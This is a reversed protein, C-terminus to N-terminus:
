KLRRKRSLPLFLLNLLLFIMMQIKMIILLKTRKRSMNKLSNQIFEQYIDPCEVRIEKKLKSSVSAPKANLFIRKLKTLISGFRPDVQNSVQVMKVEEEMIMPVELMKTM